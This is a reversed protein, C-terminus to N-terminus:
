AVACEAGAMAGLRETIGNRGSATILLHEKARTMGVYLLKMTQAVEEESDDIQGLGLFLVSRFELGKSSQVSLINVWNKRPNYSRKGSREAMLLHPIGLSQLQHAVRRGHDMNMCIVAVDGLFDGRGHWAKLCKTAYAIEDGIREFQRFVPGPGSAGGTEPLVRPIHDDDAAKADLFRNSFECAFQLIERTNRYNLRLISTRGAAKIGVSSLSFDLGKSKRYIAQADDYLLLLSDTDPDVMQTVLKLWEPEFDHGEDILIAGYQARPIRGADVGAIVAEVQREWMRGDDHPVEVHYTRLQEGCWEHFHHINVRDELEREAIFTRLRAALTINYCLVLIPKHLMAALHVCRFGLILTKGSGAVGHIVRHGSGLNRALQEQQLDLVRILDPISEPEPQGGGKEELETFFTTQREGIRIEPFLHWRIREIQPLTLPRKFHYHFMGWLREQFDMADVSETMEDQCILLRGPLVLNQEEESLAGDLQKRTINTLVVGYGYPFGIKGQYPGEPECLQPDRGLTNIVLNLYSRAQELPNAVTKVAGNVCIEASIKDIRRIIDLKWDKVELLLLGRSPHLILFDPYHRAPGVPVDFWCLYDDELLIELRKAFRREGSTVNRRNQTLSHIIRAM